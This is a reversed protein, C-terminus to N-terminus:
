NFKDKWYIYEIIWLITENSDWRRLMKTVLDLTWYSKYVSEHVWSCNSDLLEKMEEADTTEQQTKIFDLNM